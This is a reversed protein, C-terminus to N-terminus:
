IITKLWVGVLYGGKALCIVAFVLMIGISIQLQKSISKYKIFVKKM